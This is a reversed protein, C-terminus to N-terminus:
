ENLVKIALNVDAIAEKSEEIRNKLGQIAELPDLVAQRTALRTELEIIREELTPM